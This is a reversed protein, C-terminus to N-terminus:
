NMQRILAVIVGQITMEEHRLLETMEGEHFSELRAFEGEPFYKKIHTQHGNLAIIWEGSEAEQRAEVILLDGDLMHESVLSMGQVQLIYTIDPYRVFNSPVKISKTESYMEIPFSAQIMGVFPLEVEQGGAVKKSSQALTLSRKKSKEGQIYGKEKLARMHNVVSGISSFNFHAMIERFTPSYGKNEIWEELFSLIEKQRKTLQKLTIKRPM